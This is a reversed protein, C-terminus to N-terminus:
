APGAPSSARSAARSWRIAARPSPPSPDSPATPPRSPRDAPPGTVAAPSRSTCRAPCGYPYPAGRGDRVAGPGTPAAPGYAPGSLPLGPDAAFADLTEALRRALLRATDEDYLATAYELAGRLGAPAGDADTLETLAFTLDSKAGVARFAVPEGDLVNPTGSAATAAHVQLMVQVLPAHAASRHPSLHEVLRDFPLDQHSYAALDAERVRHVLDTFAPDGSTDTRLM